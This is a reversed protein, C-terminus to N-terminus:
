YKIVFYDLLADGIEKGVCKGGGGGGGVGSSDGVLWANTEVEM